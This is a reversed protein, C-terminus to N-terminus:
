KQGLPWSRVSQGLPVLLSARCVCHALIGLTVKSVTTFGGGLAAVGQVVCCCRASRPQRVTVLLYVHSAEVLLTLTTRVLALSSWWEVVLSSCIPHRQHGAKLSLPTTAPRQRALVNQLAASPSEEQQSPVLAAGAACRAEGAASASASTIVSPPAPRSM